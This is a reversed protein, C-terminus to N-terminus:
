RSPKGFECPKPRRSTSPLHGECQLVARLRPNPQTSPCRDDWPEMRTCTTIIGNARERGSGLRVPSHRELHGRGRSAGGSRKPSGSTTTATTGPSAASPSRRLEEHEPTTHAVLPSQLQELVYGNRRLILGFFTRADHTVFDLEFGGDRSLPHCDRFTADSKTPSRANDRCPHEKSVSVRARPRPPPPRVQADVRPGRPRSPSRLRGGPLPGRAVLGSMATSAQPWPRWPPAPRGLRPRRRRSQDAADGPLRSSGRARRARDGRRWSDGGGDLWRSPYASFSREVPPYLAPPVRTPDASAIPVDRRSSGQDAWLAEYAAIVRPWAFRSSPGVGRPPASSRRYADDGVLERWPRAPRPWTSSSRRAPRPWSITTTTRASSSDRRRGPRPARRRGDDDAGAPRDRRPRRPRSLRGLGSAVVPLGCAMAEAVVLGFTEQLNDVLSVALDAARWVGLRAEPDM